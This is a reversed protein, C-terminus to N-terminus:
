EGFVSALKERDRLKLEEETYKRLLVCSKIWITPNSITTKGKSNTVPKGHEVSMDDVYASLEYVGRETIKDKCDKVFKIKYWKDKILATCATFKKNDSKIDKAYVTITKVVNEM